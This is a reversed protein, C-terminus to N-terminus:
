LTIKYDKLSYWSTVTKKWNEIKEKIVNEFKDKKAPDIKGDKEYPKKLEARNEITLYNAMNTLNCDLITRDNEPFMNYLLSYYLSRYGAEYELNIIKNGVFGQGQKYTAAPLEKLSDAIYRGNDKIIHLFHSAEHVFIAFQQEDKFKVTTETCEACDDPLVIQAVFGEPTFYGGVDELKREFMLVGLLQESLVHKVYNFFEKRGAAYESDDLLEVNNITIENYTM